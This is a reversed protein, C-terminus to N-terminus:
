QFAAVMWHMWLQHERQASHRVLTLGYNDAVALQADSGRPQLARERHRRSGVPAQQLRRKDEANALPLHEPRERGAGAQHYRSSRIVPVDGRHHPEDPAEVHRM